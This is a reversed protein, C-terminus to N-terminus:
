PNRANLPRARYESRYRDRYEEHCKKCARRCDELAGKRAEVAGETALSPWDNYEAPGLAAIRTFARELADVQGSALSPSANGKMWMQLPCDPAPSRGCSEPSSALATAGHTPGSKGSGTGQRSPVNARAVWVALASAVVVVVAAIAGSRLRAGSTSV